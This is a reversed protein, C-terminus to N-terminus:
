EDLPTQAMIVVHRGLQWLALVVPILTVAVAWQALKHGARHNRRGVIECVAIVFMVLVFKFVVLGPLGGLDLAWNAVGNLERGGWYLIVWTFMIDLAAFFVYWIYIQPFLAARRWFGRRAAGPSTEPAPPQQAPEAPDPM